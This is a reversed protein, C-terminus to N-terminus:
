SIARSAAERRVHFYVDGKVYIFMAHIVIRGLRQRAGEIKGSAYKSNEIPLACTLFMGAGRM